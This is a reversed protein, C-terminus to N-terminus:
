KKAGLTLNNKACFVKIADEYNKFGHNLGDIEEVSLMKLPTNSKARAYANVASAIEDHFSICDGDTNETYAFVMEDTVMDATIPVFAAPPHTYLPIVPNRWMGCESERRASEEVFFLQLSGDTRRVAWACAVPEQDPQALLGQLMLKAADCEGEDAHEAVCLAEIVQEIQEKSITHM